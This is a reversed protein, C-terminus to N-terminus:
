NAHSGDDLQIKNSDVEMRARKYKENAFFM